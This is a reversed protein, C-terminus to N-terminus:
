LAKSTISGGSGSQSNVLLESKAPIEFRVAVESPQKRFAQRLVVLLFQVNGILYRKGLRRPEMFLRWLWECGLNQWVTPARKTISGVLEFSGGVGVMVKARLHLHDQIWYEAKPAGLAVFVIDPQAANIRDSAEKDLEADRDFGFEPCDIGAVILGPYRRVMREATIEGAGPRGGLFYVSKGYIAAEECLRVMLETGNVRGRLPRGFAAAVWLLPVGDAISIASRRILEALRPEHEAVTVFQANVTVVQRCGDNPGSIYAMVKEVTEAFSFRDIVVKGVAVRKM